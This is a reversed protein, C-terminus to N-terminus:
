KIFGIRGIPFFIFVAKGLMLREPVLGWKRSDSSQASNDGMCLYHAPQVYFIDARAHDGAANNRTYYVDRHLKINQIGVGGEAGISAPALVDNTRTWGEPNFDPQGQADKFAAEQDPTPPTYNGEEGFDILKGDVWVWLRCDVNAFRLDHSGTAVKCPRSPEGFEAGGAGIRKLAV